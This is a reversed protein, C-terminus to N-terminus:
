QGQRLQVAGGDHREDRWRNPRDVIVQEGDTKRSRLVQVDDRGHGPMIGLQTVAISTRIGCRLDDAATRLKPHGVPTRSRAERTFQCGASKYESLRSASDAPVRARPMAQYDAFNKAAM